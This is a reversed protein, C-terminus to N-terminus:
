LRSNPDFGFSINVTGGHIQIVPAASMNYAMATNNQAYNQQQPQQVNKKLEPPTLLSLFLEDPYSDVDFIENSAHTDGLPLPSLSPKEQIDIAHPHKNQGLLIDDFEFQDFDIVNDTVVVQKVTIQPQAHHTKKNCEPFANRYHTLFADEDVIDKWTLSEVYLLLGIKKRTNTQKWLSLYSNLNPTDGFVSSTSGGKSNFHGVALDVLVTPVGALALRDTLGKRLSTNTYLGEMIRGDQLLTQVQKQVAKALPKPGIPKKASLLVNDGFRGSPIHYLFFRNLAGPPRNYLFVRFPECNEEGFIFSSMRDTFKFNVLKRTKFDGSLKFEICHKSHDTFDTVIFNAIEQQSRCGCFQTHILVCLSANTKIYNELDNHQKYSNRKALTESILLKWSKMSISDSTFANPQKQGRFKIDERIIKNKLTENLIKYEANNKWSWNGYFSSLRQSKCEVTKMKRVIDDLYGKLTGGDYHTLDKSTPLLQEIYISLLHARQLHSVEFLLNEMQQSLMQPSINDFIDPEFLEPAKLFVKGTKVLANWYECLRNWQQNAGYEASKSSYLPTENRQSLTTPVLQHQASVFKTAQNKSATKTSIKKDEYKARKLSLPEDESDSDSGPLQWESNPSNSICEESDSDGLLTNLHNHNSVVPKSTCTRAFHGPQKCKM